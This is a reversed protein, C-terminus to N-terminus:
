IGWEIDVSKDSINIRKIMKQAVLKRQNLNLKDWNDIMRKIKIADFHKVSKRKQEIKNILIMKENHLKTVEENIYNSLIDNSTALKKILNEIQQEIEILKIKNKNLELNNDNESNNVDNGLTPLANAKQIMAGLVLQEVDDLYITQNGECIHFTNKGRCLLYRINRSSGSHYVTMAYGCKSCKTLGTLWTYKGKGSNKIQKNRDLKDQCKLFVDPEILGNHLAIALTYDSIDTYKGINRDRKGYLFCGNTGIYYDLNNAIKCGKNKYYIYIDANAKVYVPNRLIRQIKTSDWGYKGTPNKVKRQTLLKALKGLSMNSTNAYLEFIENIIKSNENKILTSTKKGEIIISEKSYGYPARGGLYFGKQGRANYNDKIRQQITERELQAFVMIISLMARGMPTSTDFKENVSVFEIKYQEFVNMIKAFDILARSIRDLRYVIIKSIKKDKIDCMLKQFQPRDTNKGSFGKDSYINIKEDSTTERKCLEIQTEISISDKKDISQRVYIAVM